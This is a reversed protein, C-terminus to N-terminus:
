ECPKIESHDIVPCFTDCDCVINENSSWVKVPNPKVERKTACSFLNLMLMLYLIRYMTM